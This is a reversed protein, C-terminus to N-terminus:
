IPPDGYPEAALALARYFETVFRRGPEALRRGTETELM